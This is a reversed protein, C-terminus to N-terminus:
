AMVGEEEDAEQVAIADTLVLGALTELFSKV